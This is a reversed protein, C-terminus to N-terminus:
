QLRMAMTDNASGCWTWRVRDREGAQRKEDDQGKTMRPAPVLIEEDEAETEVVAEEAEVAEVILTTQYIL